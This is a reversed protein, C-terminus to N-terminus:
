RAICGVTREFEVSGLFHAEREVIDRYGIRVSSGDDKRFHHNASRFITPLCRIHFNGVASGIAERISSRIGVRCALVHLAHEEAFPLEDEGAIASKVHISVEPVSDGAVVVDSYSSALVIWDNVDRCGALISNLNM